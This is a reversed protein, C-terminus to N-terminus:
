REKRLAARSRPFKRQAVEWLGKGDTLGEEDSCSVRADGDDEISIRLTSVMV